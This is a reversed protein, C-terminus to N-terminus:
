LGDAHKASPLRKLETLRRHTDEGVGVWLGGRDTETDGRWGLRRRQLPDLKAETGDSRPFRAFTRKQSFTNTTAPLLLVAPM